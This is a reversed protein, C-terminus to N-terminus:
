IPPRSQAINDYHKSQYNNTFFIFMYKPNLATSKAQLSEIEEDLEAEVPDVIPQDELITAMTSPLPLYHYGCICVNDGSGLFAGLHRLHKNNVDRDRLHM